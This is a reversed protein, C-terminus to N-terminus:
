PFLPSQGQKICAKICLTKLQVATANNGDLLLLQSRVTLSQHIFFFYFWFPFHFIYQLVFKPIHLFGVSISCKVPACLLFFFYTLWSQLELPPPPSCSSPHAILAFPLHLIPWPNSVVVFCHLSGESCVVMLSHLASATLSSQWIM